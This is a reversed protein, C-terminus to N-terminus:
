GLPGPEDKDLFIEIKKVRTTIPSARPTVDDYKESNIIWVVNETM